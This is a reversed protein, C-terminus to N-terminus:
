RAADRQGVIRIAARLVQYAPREGAREARELAEWTSPLTEPRGVAFVLEWDGEHLGIDRILVDVTVLGNPAIRPELPLPSGQGEIPRGFAGVAVPGEVPENPRLVVHLRSARSYSPVPSTAEPGRWAADGVLPDLTYTTALGGQPRTLFSVLVVAAAVAALVIGSRRPLWTSVAHVEPELGRRAGAEGGDEGDGRAKVAEKALRALLTALLEERREPTPTAFVRRALEREEPSELVAAAAETSIEGDVVRRWAIAAPTSLAMHAGIVEATRHDSM